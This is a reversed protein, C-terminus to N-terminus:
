TSGSSHTVTYTVTTLGQNLTKVCAAAYAIEAPSANLGSGKLAGSCNDAYLPDLGQVVATCLGPDTSTVQDAPVSITPKETDNVTVTFSCEATNGASRFLTTYPFLTSIPPPPPPTLSLLSLPF